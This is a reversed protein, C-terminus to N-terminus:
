NASKRRKQRKNWAQIVNWRWFLRVAINGLIALVIGCVLSGVLLPLGVTNFEQKIWRLTLELHFHQPPIRLIITGLKYGFYFMPPITLPNSVWVLIVALPLNAQFIISLFTATLMHGPFPLYCAFLGISVATAVSHRNLHWLNPNSILPGFIKLQKHNRIKAPDPLFRKFIKKAM